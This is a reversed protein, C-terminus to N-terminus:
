KAGGPNALRSRRPAQARPREPEIEGWLGRPSRDLYRRVAARAEEGPPGRRAIWAELLRDRSPPREPASAMEVHRRSGTGKFFPLPAGFELLPRDDTNIPARPGGAPAVLRAADEPGFLELCLLAEVAELRDRALDARVEPRAFREALADLDVALPERSGVLFLDRQGRECFIRVHPFVTLYTRLVLDVLEDSIEYTHIWQLSIGGPNLRAAIAEFHEKTFLSGIGAVWPNSPESVIADYRRRELALATRADAVILRTRPDALPAHTAADFWRSAQVVEPSLEVVDLREIPHRLLSGATMGSGLGVVLVDKARPRLLLPIHALLLQTRIDEATSADAKGNILLTLSKGSRSDFVAVTATAGDRYYRIRGAREAIETRYEALTGLDGRRAVRFVQLTLAGREVAPVIAALLAIAAGAAAAALRGRGGAAVAALAGAGALANLAVGATFTHRVGLLPLLVLGAGLAGALSGATNAGFSAAVGRGPGLADAAARAALPLALGGLVAPIAMVGLCLLLQAAQFDRFGAVTQSLADRISGFAFPLLDVLPLTLAVAAGLALEIAGFLRLPARSRAVRRGASIRAGIAIGGIFGALMITFAYTSAGLTIALLRAWAVEYVLAAAGALFAGALAARRALVPSPTPSPAPAPAPSPSPSPARELFLLSLAVATAGALINALGVARLSAELGLDPILFYGAALTGLVAGACNVAYLRGLARSLRAGRAVVGEALLPLTTGMLVAPPLILTAGAALKAAILGAGGPDAGAALAGFARGAAAWLAPFAIAFLGIAVEIWGYLAIRRGARAVLRGGAAYGLAQGGMFSALVIAHAYADHGLFLALYRAWVVEYVLAFAGTCLFLAGIAVLPAAGAFARRM